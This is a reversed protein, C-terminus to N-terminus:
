HRLLRLSIENAEPIRMEDTLYALKDQLNEQEIAAVFELDVGWAPPRATVVLRSGDETTEGDEALALTALTEEGASRLREPSAEDWEM